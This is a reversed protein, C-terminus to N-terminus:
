MGICVSLFTYIKEKTVSSRSSFPSKSFAGRVPLSKFVFVISFALSLWLEVPHESSQPSSFYGM